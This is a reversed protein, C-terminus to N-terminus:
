NSMSGVWEVHYRSSLPCFGRQFVGGIILLVEFLLAYFQSIEEFGVIDSKLCIDACVPRPAKKMLSRFNESFSQSYCALGKGEVSAFLETDHRASM